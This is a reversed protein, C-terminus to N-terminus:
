QLSFQARYSLFLFWITCMCLRIMSIFHQLASTIFFLRFQVRFLTVRTPQSSRYPQLNHQVGGGSSRATQLIYLSKFSCVCKCDEKFGTEDGNGISTGSWLILVTGVHAPYWFRGLPYLFSCTLTYQQIARYEMWSLFAGVAVRLVCFAFVFRHHDPVLPHGSKGKLMKLLFSSVAKSLNILTSHSHRQSVELNVHVASCAM